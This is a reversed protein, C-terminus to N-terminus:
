DDEPLTLTLVPRPDDGPGVVSIVSLTGGNLAPFEWTVRNGHPNTRAATRFSRLLDMLRGAAEPDDGMDAPEPGIVSLWLTRTIATPVRIGEARRVFEYGSGDLDILVGDAIAEARSYGSIVEWDAFPDRENM